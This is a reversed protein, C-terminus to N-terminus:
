GSIREIVQGLVGGGLTGAGVLIWRAKELARIRVEHDNHGSVFMDLKTEIRALRETLGEVESPMLEGLM